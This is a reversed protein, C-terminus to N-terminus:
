SEEMHPFLFDGASEKEMKFKEQLIELAFHYPLYAGFGLHARDPLGRRHAQAVQDPNEWKVENWWTM